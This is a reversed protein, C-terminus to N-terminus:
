LTNRSTIRQMTPWELYRPDKLIRYASAFTWMLRANLVISRDADKVPELTRLVAGYFGGKPAYDYNIYFDLIDKLEQRSWEDLSQM